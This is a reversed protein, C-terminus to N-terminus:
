DKLNQRFRPLIESILYWYYNPFSTVDIKLIHIYKAPLFSYNKLNDFAYNGCYMKYRIYYINKKFNRKKYSLKVLVIKM